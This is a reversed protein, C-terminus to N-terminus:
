DRAGIEVLCGQGDFESLPNLRPRPTNKALLLRPASEVLESITKGRRTAEQKLRRMVQDDIVLTTKMHWSCCKAETEL